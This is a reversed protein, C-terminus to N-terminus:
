IMSIMTQLPTIIENYRGKILSRSTYLVLNQSPVTIVAFHKQRSYLHSNTCGDIVTERTSEPCPITWSVQDKGKIFIYLTNHKNTNLMSCELVIPLRPQNYYYKVSDLTHSHSIHFYTQKKYKTVVQQKRTRFVLIMDINICRQKNDPM